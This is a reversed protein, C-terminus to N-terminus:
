KLGYIQIWRTFNLCRWLAATNASKGERLDHLMQNVKARDIVGGAPISAVTEQALSGIAALWKAQPTIFGIKDKRDLVQSPVVGRMAARLLCKANGKHDIMHSEPQSFAFNALPVTLFPVRSEISHAMSNRDAYRLLTPLGSQTTSYVLYDALVRASFSRAPPAINVAHDRLWDARMWGPVLEEGAMKRGIAQWQSPLLLSFAQKWLQNKSVSPRQSALAAFNMSESLKGQKLLSALRAALYSDYGAFLEDAGQGDLTVKIGVRQALEFVKYQAYISTSNFPLDQMYILLDLQNALEEPDPCTVHEIAGVASAVLEAYATEDLKEDAAKYTFTHLDLNPGELERMTMVLSSSDIGGSLAAGVPTDSRLHLRVSEQFLSRLQRTATEFDQRNLASSPEWYRVPERLEDPRKLDIDIWSAAPLEYVGSFLTERAHETEGFRLYDYARQPQLKPGSPMLELLAKIESAFAMGGDVRAYYLPKIGFPDRALLAKQRRLDVFCFAFM